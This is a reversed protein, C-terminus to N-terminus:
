PGLAFPELGARALGDAAALTEGGVRVEGEGTLAVAVHALPALDGSAGVSGKGPVCPHVAANVLGLLAEVLAPRVGSRACALANVKLVLIRRVVRDPLLPGSGVANSLVLRRQLELMQAEPIITDALSGFGTNVGYIRQKRAIADAVVAHAAEARPRWSPELAVVLGPDDLRRLDGLTLEGPRLVFTDSM